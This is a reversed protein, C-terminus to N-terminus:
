KNDYHVCNCAYHTQKCNKCARLVRKRRKKKRWKSRKSPELHNLHTQHPSCFFFFLFSLFIIGTTSICDLPAAPKWQNNRHTNLRARFIWIRMQIFTVNTKQKNGRYELSYIWNSDSNNDKSVIEIANPTMTRYLRTFICSLLNHM